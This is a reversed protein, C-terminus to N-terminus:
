RGRGKREKEMAGVRTELRERAIKETTLEGQLADVKEQCKQERENVSNLQTQYNQLLERFEEITDKRRVDERQETDAVIKAQAVVEQGKGERWGKVLPVVWERGVIAIISGIVAGAGAAQVVGSTDEAFLVM